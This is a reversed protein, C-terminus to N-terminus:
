AGSNMLVTLLETLIENRRRQRSMYSDREYTDPDTNWWYDSDWHEIARLEKILTGARDLRDDGPLM